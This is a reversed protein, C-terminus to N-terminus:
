STWKTTSRWQRAIAREFDVVAMRKQHNVLEEATSPEGAVLSRAAANAPDDLFEKLSPPKESALASIEINVEKPDSKDIKIVRSTDAGKLSPKNIIVYDIM